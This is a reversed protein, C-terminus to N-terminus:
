AAALMGLCGVSLGALLLSGSPLVIWISVIWISVAIVLATDFTPGATTVTTPLERRDAPTELPLPTNM